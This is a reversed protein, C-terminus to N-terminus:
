LKMENEDVYNNNVNNVKLFLSFFFNGSLLMKILVM